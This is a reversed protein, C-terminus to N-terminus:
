GGDRRQQIPQTHVVLNREVAVFLIAVHLGKDLQDVADFGILRM